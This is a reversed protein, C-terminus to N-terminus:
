PREGFQRGDLDDTIVSTDPTRAAYFLRGNALHGTMGLDRAAHCAIHEFGAQVLARNMEEPTHCRETVSSDSRRWAGRIRRFMTLRCHALRNDADYGEGTIVLVDTDHVLASAERWHNRYAEEGLVDFVFLGGPKLAALVNRFTQRLAEPSLIHNLSDFTSVAADFVPDFSFATADRVLFEAQPAHTRAHRIMRSSVDIGTVSLGRESLLRALRGTGCCVDLVRQGPTLHPLLMGELVPFAANHYPDNWYRAYFWAFDDYSPKRATKSM